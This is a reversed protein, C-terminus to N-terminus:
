MAGVLIQRSTEPNVNGKESLSTLGHTELAHVIADIGSDSIDYDALHTKIGLSEFFKRTKDIAEEIRKDESGEKINWVREAYQLLKARKQEKLVTLVSPLLIALTTGHDIHFLATIEHGIMHSSWDQPVGAGILGNLAMTACWVLNARADYEEPQDITKRGIEILTLLIGEATRDQFDGNVPYTLYQETTHVFTDAIGNAVQHPPLSFTLTPDLFSFLPYVAPHALVYKGQNYTIVATCNMESGTAPLTVVTGFPLASKIEVPRSRLFVIDEERGQEWVSALAVFKTGDM